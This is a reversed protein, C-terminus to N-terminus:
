TYFGNRNRETPIKATLAQQASGKRPLDGFAVRYVARRAACIGVQGSGSQRWLSGTLAPPQIGALQALGALFFRGSLVPLLTGTVPLGAVASRVLFLAM